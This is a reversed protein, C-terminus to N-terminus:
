GNAYGRAANYRKTQELLRAMIQDPTKKKQKGFRPMFDHADFSRSGRGRNVNAITAAVIGSRLDGRDSEFPFARYYAQWEM